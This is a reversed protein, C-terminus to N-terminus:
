SFYDLINGVISGSQQPKSTSNGKLINSLVDGIVGGNQKQLRDNVEEVAVNTERQVGRQDLNQNRQRDALYKLVIPALLIMVRKVAAEDIGIINGIKQYINEEQQKTEFVHGLIKDGDQPDVHQTMEEPSQYQSVDQHKTLADVLSGLGADSQTNRNIQKLIIPLGLAAVKAFDSTSVDARQALQQEQSNSGLFLDILQSANGFLGNM